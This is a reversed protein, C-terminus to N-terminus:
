SHHDQENQKKQIYIKVILSAISVLIFFAGIKPSGGATYLIGALLLLTASLYGMWSKKM